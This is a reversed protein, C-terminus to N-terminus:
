RLTFSPKAVELEETMIEKVPVRNGTKNKAVVQTTIKRDTVLGSLRGSDDTVLVTGVDKDVTLKAVDSVDASESGFAV